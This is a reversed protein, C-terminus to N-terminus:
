ESSDDFILGIDQSPRREQRADLLRATPRSETLMDLARLYAKSYGGAALLQLPTEGDSGRTNLITKLTAQNGRALRSIKEVVEATNFLAEALDRRREPERGSKIAKITPHTTGVVEALNRNSWGTQEVLRRVIRILDPVPQPEYKPFIPWNSFPDSMKGTNHIEGIPLAVTGIPEVEHRVTGDAILLM